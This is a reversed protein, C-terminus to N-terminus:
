RAVLGTFWPARAALAPALGQDLTSSRASCSACAGELRVEVRGREDVGLLEIRGGDLELAPAIQELAERVQALRAPDGYPPAPPAGALLDRLWSLMAAM